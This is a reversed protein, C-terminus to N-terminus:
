YFLIEIFILIFPFLYKWYCVNQDRMLIMNIFVYNEDVFSRSGSIHLLAVSVRNFLHWSVATAKGLRAISVILIIVKIIM